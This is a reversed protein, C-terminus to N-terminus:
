RDPLKTLKGSMDKETKRNIKQNITWMLSIEENWGSKDEKQLWKKTSQPALLTRMIFKDMQYFQEKTSYFKSNWHTLIDTAVWLRAFYRWRNVPQVRETGM